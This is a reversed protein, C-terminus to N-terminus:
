FTIWRTHYGSSRIRRMPVSRRMALQWLDQLILKAIVIILDLLGLPDFLKVIESLRVRKSVGHAETDLKCFFQFTDQCQNWHM